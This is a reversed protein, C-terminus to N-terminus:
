KLQSFDTPDMFVRDIKQVIRGNAESEKSVKQWEPDAQFEKWNKDAQERSAHSIIYILTTNRRDDQPVWYGISEMGHRKFIEITHDRFRAKLADLKGEFCTYTRLEYVRNQGFAFGAFLLACLLLRHTM